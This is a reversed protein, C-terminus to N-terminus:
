KLRQEFDQKPREPADAEVEAPVVYFKRDFPNNISKIATSAHIKKEFTKAEAKDSTYDALTRGGAIKELSYVFKEKGGVKFAIAYKTM